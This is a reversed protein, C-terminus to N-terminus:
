TLLRLHCEREERNWNREMGNVYREKGNREEGNENGNRVMGTGTGIETGM